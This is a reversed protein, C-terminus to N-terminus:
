LRKGRRPPEDSDKDIRGILREYAKLSDELRKQLKRMDLSQASTARHIPELWARMLDFQERLVNTFAKPLRNVVTIRNDAPENVEASAPADTPSAPKTPIAAAPAAASMLLQTLDGFQSGMDGFKSLGSDLSQSISALGAQMGDLQGSLAEVMADIDASEDVNEVDPEAAVKEDRQESLQDVGKAMARRISDLGDSLTGLQAIVQGTKDDSSIGRMKVNQRFTRKIDEWREKEEDTMLETLEKFKLLNAETGSTLTQADNEYNSVILATLEDDNMVSVVKEAIRNMNRYSGQLKFAPETRYDDAQAASRIYEKNVALIVDRVRMLKQMTSVLENIEELSYNGELEIGDRPENNAMAIIAYVDKQSRSALKSLVPNSTLSNELYSMEFADSTEGIIEGLNYIDARNSLMDPIQFKEGSETYPNGAMVVAVKRGRLDYTRSRGKYVGEIKRQADCLSIFKQLFEPNTHQIDDLYIMVNDGMELALNLKQVEERAGANTTESPDLSTVNHGLAPGNIKMFILGLRNAIYEMLTTKGYGPPSVLLLLGMLDTRKGEGASGIQKALNDGILPLYVENLLRNRVFSTLVRPRFEELRM